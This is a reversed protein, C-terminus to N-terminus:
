DVFFRKWFVNDTVMMMGSADGIIAKGQRESSTHMTGAPEPAAEESSNTPAMLPNTTSGRMAFTMVSETQKVDSPDGGTVNASPEATAEIALTTSDTRNNDIVLSETVSISETFPAVTSDDRMVLTVTANEEPIRVTSTAPEGTNDISNEAIEEDTLATEEDVDLHEETLNLSGSKNLPTETPATSSSAITSGHMAFTVVNETGNVDSTEEGTNKPMSAMENPLTTSEITMKTQSVSSSETSPLDTPDPTMTSSSLPKDTRNVSENPSVVTPQTSPAATSQHMALTTANNDSLPSPEEGTSNVFPVSVVEKALTTSDTTMLSEGTRNMSENLLSDTHDMSPATTSDMIALTVANETRNAGGTEEGIINASSEAAMENALATSETSTHVAVLSETTRNVSSSANSSGENPDVSPETFPDTSEDM